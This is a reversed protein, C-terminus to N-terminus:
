GLLAPPIGDHFGIDQNDFEERSSHRALPQFCKFGLAQRTVSMPVPEAGIVVHAHVASAPATPRDASVSWPGQSLRLVIM